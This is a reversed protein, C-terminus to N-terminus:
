KEEVYSIMWQIGFQDTVMGFFAGWFQHGLPMMAFGGASLENFLQTTEEESSTDLTIMFNKGSDAPPMHAPIDMGMIVSNGVPLQVYLIKEAAEPPLQHDGPMDKMRQLTTFEGGFVSRYFNFVTETNGNFMLTINSAKM